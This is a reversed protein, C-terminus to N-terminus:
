APGPAAAGSRHVYYQYSAVAPEPEDREVRAVVAGRGAVFRRVADESMGTARMPHLGAREYLWSERVGLTRLLAYLRRRLDRRARWPVADPLQFVVLGDERVVRLFEEVYRRVEAASRLHQLVIRSYVLDFTRAPFRGLDPAPNVVFVCGPVDANAARAQEVMRESIDVGVVEDFHEALHRSVRGVGCGFDLARGRGVPRGLERAARVVRLVDAEGTAFFEPESWRRGRREPDSLIAWLPDVSALDDWDRRHRDLRRM